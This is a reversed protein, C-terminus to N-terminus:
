NFSLNEEDKQESVGVELGFPQKLHAYCKPFWMIFEFLNMVILLLGRKSSNWLKRLIFWEPKTQIGKLLLKNHQKKLARVVSFPFM